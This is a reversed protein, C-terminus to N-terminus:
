EWPSIAELGAEAFQFAAFGGNAIVMGVDVALIVEPEEIWGSTLAAYGLRACCSSIMSVEDLIAASRDWGEPESALEVFHWISGGMACLALFSDCLAGWKRPDEVFELPPIWYDHTSWFFKNFLFPITVVTNYVFLREDKIPCRRVLYNALARSGGGLLASAGSAVALKSPVSKSPLVAEQFDFFASLSGGVGASAHLLLACIKKQNHTLVFPPDAAVSSALSAAMADAEIEGVTHPDDVDSVMGSVMAPGTSVGFARAVSPFDTASILFTTEPSDPFPSTDPRGGITMAIKYAITVPVAVIWCVIDLFSLDPLGFANLIDSVVPIHIPYDFLDVAAKVMIYLIDFLADIVVKSSSLALDGVIGILRKLLDNISLGAGEDFLKVLRDFAEDLTKGEEASARKLAEFVTSPPQPMTSSAPDYEARDANGQFHHSLLSEPATRGFAAKSPEPLRSDKTHDVWAFDDIGAWDDIAKIAAIAAEDFQTKVVQIQNVQEYLFLRLINKLVDKTRKMDAVDFLYRVFDIVDEIAEVIKDFVYKFAAYIKEVVDLIAEYIAEGIRIIVRWVRKGLNVFWDVFADWGSPGAALMGGEVGTGESAQRAFVSRQVSRAELMMFLDGADVRIPTQEGVFRQYAALNPAMLTTTSSVGSQGQLADHAQWLSDVNAAASSVDSPSANSKVLKKPAHATEDQYHIWADDLGSGTTLTRLRSSVTPSDQMPSVLAVAGDGVVTVTLKTADLRLAAEVITIAGMADTEVEVPVPGLSYYLHNIHATTVAGTQTAISVKILPAPRGATDTVQLRTTYSNFSMAAQTASLPPLVVDRLTWTGAQGPSKAAIKLQNAGSHAFVCHASNGRNVYPAASDVPALIPLPVTWSSPTLLEGAPCSLQFVENSANLGWVTVVESDVSAFLHRVGTLRPSTVLAVATAGDRQNDSAFYHLVGDSTAFLDSTDDPKRCAAIATPVLGPGDTLHLRRPTAPATPDFLSFLPRYVFQSEGGIAGSTYLGDIPHKRESPTDPAPRGLCSSYKSVELDFPLEHSRWTPGAPNTVDIYYRSVLAVPSQRNRVVDVVIYENDTAESIFVDVITQQAPGALQQGVTDKAVFPCATWAPQDSWATDSDSNGLSLYLHDSAGDNVVVALRVTGAAAGHITQTVAFNTVDAGDPFDRSVLAGTLDVRKWGYRDEPSEKTLYLTSRHESTGVSFLLASGTASCLAQFKGQPSISDAQLYNEMLESSTEITYETM